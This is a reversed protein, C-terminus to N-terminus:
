ILVEGHRWALIPDDRRTWQLQLNHQNGSFLEEYPTSGGAHNIAGINTSNKFDVAPDVGGEIYTVFGISRQCDMRIGSTHTGEVQQVRFINGFGHGADIAQNCSFSMRVDIHHAQLEQAEGSTNRTEVVAGDIGRGAVGSVRSSNTNDDPGKQHFRILSDDLREGTVDHIESRGRTVIGPGTTVGRGRIHFGGAAVGVGPECKIVPHTGTPTIQPGAPDRLDTNAGVGQISLPKDVIIPTDSFFQGQPLIIVSGSPAEAIVENVADGLDGRPPSVYYRGHAQDYNATTRGRDTHIASKTKDYTVDLDFFHFWGGFSSGSSPSWASATFPALDVPVDVGSDRRLKVDSDDICLTYGKFSDSLPPLELDFEVTNRGESVAFEFGEVPSDPYGQGGSEGVLRYVKVVLTGDSDADCTASNLRIPEDPDLTLGVPSRHYSGAPTEPGFTDRSGWTAPIAGGEGSGSQQRLEELDQDLQRFDDRFNTDSM